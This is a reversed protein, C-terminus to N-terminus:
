TSSMPKSLAGNVFSLKNETNLAMKMAQKWAPYNDGNFLIFVLIASLHDTSHLFYPPSVDLISSSTLFSAKQSPPIPCPQLFFFFLHHQLVYVFFYARIDHLTFSKHKTHKANMTVVHIYYMFFSVLDWSQLKFMYKQYNSLSKYISHPSIVIITHFDLFGIWPYANGNRNTIVMIM